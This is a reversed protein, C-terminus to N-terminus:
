DSKNFYFDYDSGDSFNPESDYYYDYEDSDYRDSQYGANRNQDADAQKCHPCDIHCRLSEKPLRMQLVHIDGERKLRDPLVIEIKEEKGLLGIKKPLIQYFIRTDCTEKNRAITVIKDDVIELRHSSQVYRTVDSNESRGKVDSIKMSWTDVVNTIIENDKMQIDIQLISAKTFVYVGGEPCRCIDTLEGTTHEIFNLSSMVSESLAYILLEKRKELLLCFFEELVCLAKPTGRMSVLPQFATKDEDVDDAFYVTCSQMRMRMKTIGRASLKEPLARLELVEHCQLHAFAQAFDQVTQYKRLKEVSIYVYFEFSRVCYLKNNIYNLHKLEPRGDCFEVEVMKETLIKDEMNYYKLKDDKLRIFTNCTKMKFQDYAAYWYSDAILTQFWSSCELNYAYFAVSRQLNDPPFIVLVDCPLNSFKNSLLLRNSETLWNLDKFDRIDRSVEKLCSLLEPFDSQRLSCHKTWKLLFLFCDERSVYSLMPESIIYRVSDKDLLLMEDMGLLETLHALIFASAKTHDLDYTSMLLLFKSCSEVNVPVSRVRGICFAKLEEIMFFEAMEFIDAANDITIKPRQGYLFNLAAEVSYSNGVSLKIVGALLLILVM